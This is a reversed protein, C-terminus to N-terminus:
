SWRFGPDGELLCGPHERRWNCIHHIDECINDYEAESSVPDYGHSILHSIRESIKDRKKYLVTLIGNCNEICLNYKKEIDINNM